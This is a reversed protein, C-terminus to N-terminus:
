SVLESLTQKAPRGGLGAIDLAKGVTVLAAGSKEATEVVHALFDPQCGFRTPQACVDHTALILWGNVRCTDEIVQRIRGFDDRSQELFFANLCNLDIEGANFTQGGCRCASFYKECLRKISPWPESIPYSLTRFECGPLLRRLAQRNDLVAREFEPPPTTGAPCHSYTHCGLEHGQAVTAALEEPGVIRGTATETGMLGLAVYYTGAAKHEVLIRGGEHLASVPFDDFTFSILPRDLRLKAQRRGFWRSFDRRLRNKVRQM